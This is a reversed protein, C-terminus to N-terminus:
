FFFLFFPNKGVRSCVAGKVVDLDCPVLVLGHEINPDSTVGGGYSVAYM